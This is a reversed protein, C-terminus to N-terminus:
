TYFTVITFPRLPSRLADFRGSPDVHAAIETGQELRDRLVAVSSLSRGWRIWLDFRELGNWLTDPDAPLEHSSSHRFTSTGWIM